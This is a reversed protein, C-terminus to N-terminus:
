HPLHVRGATVTAGTWWGVRDFRVVGGGNPAHVMVGDGVYLGVHSPPGGVSDFVLDGPQLQSLPIADVVGWMAVSNHPLELGLQLWAWRVFGSCDFADPGGASYVYPAGLRTVGANVVAQGIARSWVASTLQPGSEPETRLSSDVPTSVVIAPEDTGSPAAGSPAVVVGVLTATVVALGTVVTAVVHRARRGPSAPRGLTPGTAPPRPSM